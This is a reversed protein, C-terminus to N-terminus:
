WVINNNFVRKTSGVETIWDMVRVKNKDSNHISILSFVKDMTEKDSVVLKEDEKGIELKNNVISTNKVYGICIYPPEKTVLEIIYTM